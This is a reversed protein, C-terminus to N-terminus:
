DIFKIDEDINIHDIIIYKSKDYYYKFFTRSQKLENKYVWKDNRKFIYKILYFYGMDDIVHRTWSSNQQKIIDGISIIQEMKAHIWFILIYIM